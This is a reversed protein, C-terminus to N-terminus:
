LPSDSTTKPAVTDPRGGASRPASSAGPRKMLVSGTRM